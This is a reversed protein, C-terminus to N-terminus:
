YVDIRKDHLALEEASIRRGTGAFIVAMRPQPGVPRFCLQMTGLRVTGSSSPNAERVQVATVGKVDYTRGANADGWSGGIVGM